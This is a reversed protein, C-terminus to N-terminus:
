EKEVYVKGTVEVKQPMVTVRPLAEGPAKWYLRLHWVGLEKEEYKYFLEVEGGVALVKEQVWRELDVEGSRGPDASMRMVHLRHLGFRSVGQEVIVEDGDM